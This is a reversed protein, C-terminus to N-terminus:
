KTRDYKEYGIRNTWGGTYQDVQWNILEMVSDQPQPYQEHIGKLMDIKVNTDKM